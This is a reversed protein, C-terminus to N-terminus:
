QDFYTNLDEIINSDGYLNGEMARYLDPIRAALLFKINLRITENLDQIARIIPFILATHSSQCNDVVLLVKNGGKAIGVITELINNYDQIAGDEPNINYLIIIKDCFKLYDCMMEMLLTSKSFGLGGLLMLRGNTELKKKIEHLLQERRYERQHYISILSLSRGKELWENFNNQSDRNEFYNKGLLVLGSKSRIQQEFEGITNTVQNGDGNIITVTVNGDINEFNFIKEM